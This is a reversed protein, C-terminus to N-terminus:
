RHRMRACAIAMELTPGNQPNHGSGEGSVYQFAIEIRGREHLYGCRSVKRARLATTMGQALFYHM